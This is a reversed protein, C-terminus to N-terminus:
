ISITFNNSGKIQMISTLNKGNAVMNFIQKKRSESENSYFSSIAKIEEGSYITSEELMKNFYYTRDIVVLPIDFESAAKLCDEYYKSKFVLDVYMNILDNADLGQLAAFRSIVDIYKKLFEKLKGRSGMQKIVNRDDESIFSLQNRYLAELCNFNSQELSDAMMIIYDPKRKFEKDKAKDNNRREIVVENYGNSITKLLESPIFYRARTGNGEQLERSGYYSNAYRGLSDIDSNGMGLISSNELSSFGLIISGQSRISYIGLENIYSCSIFHNQIQPRDLWDIKYNTHFVESALSCSGVCHVLFYFKERPVCIQIDKGNYNTEYYLSDKPGYIHKREDIKYLSKSYLNTYQARLFSEFPIELDYTIWDKLDNFLTSLEDLNNSLVIKNILVLYNYIPLPLETNKLNNCKFCYKLNIYKAEKLDINFLMKLLNNKYVDLDSSNNNMFYQKKLENYNQLATSDNIQYLNNPLQLVSVLMRLDQESINDIDLSNILDKYDSINNIINVIMASIDYENFNYFNLIKSLVELEKDSLKSIAMQIEVDNIFREYHDKNFSYVNNKLSEGIITNFINNNKRYYNLLWTCRENFDKPAINLEKCYSKMLERNTTIDLPLICKVALDFRKRKICDDRFASSEVLCKPLISTKSAADILYDINENVLKTFSSINTESNKRDYCAKEKLLSLLNCFEDLNLDLKLDFLLQAYRDNGLYYPLNINKKLLQALLKLNSLSYNELNSILEFHNSKLVLEIFSDCGKLILPVYVNEVNIYKEFFKDHEKVFDNLEDVSRFFNKFFSELQYSYHYKQFVINFIVELEEKSIVFGNKYMYFLIDEDTILFDVLMELTDIDNVNLRINVGNLLKYRYSKAIAYLLLNTNIDNLNELELLSSIDKLKNILENM